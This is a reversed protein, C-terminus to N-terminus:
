KLIVSFEKPTRILCFIKTIKGNIPQCAKEEVGLYESVRNLHCIKRILNFSYKNIIKNINKYINIILM